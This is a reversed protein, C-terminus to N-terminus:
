ANPSPMYYNWSDSSWHENNTAAPNPCRSQGSNPAFFLTDCLYCWNWNSQMPGGQWGTGHPLYYAYTGSQANTHGAAGQAPWACYGNSSNRPAYFLLGCGECFQWNPQLYSSAAAPPTGYPALYNWDDGNDHYIYTTDPCYYGIGFHVGQCHSCWNWNPQCTFEVRQGNPATAVVTSAALAVGTLGPVGVSLAVAGTLLGGRLLTRRTLGRTM